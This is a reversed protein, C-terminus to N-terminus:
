KIGKGTMLPKTLLSIKCVHYYGKNTSCFSLWCTKGELVYSHVMLISNPDVPDQTARVFGGKGIQSYVTDAGDGISIMFGNIRVSQTDISADSVKAPSYDITDYSSCSFATLLFLLVGVSIIGCRSASIMETVTLRSINQKEM